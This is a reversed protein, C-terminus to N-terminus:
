SFCWAMLKITLGICSAIACAFLVMIGVFFAWDGVGQLEALRRENIAKEVELRVQETTM